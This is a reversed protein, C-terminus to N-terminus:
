RTRSFREIIEKKKNKSIRIVKLNDKETHKYKKLYIRDYNFSTWDWNDYLIALFINWSTKDICLTDSIFKHNM